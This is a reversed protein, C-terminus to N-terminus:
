EDPSRDKGNQSTDEGMAARMAAIIKSTVRHERLEREKAPSLDFDVSSQEIRRIITGETFGAEVLDIISSNTLSPAKELKPAAEGESKPRLIRVTASGVTQGENEIAGRGGRSKSRAKSGGSSGFIETEASSKPVTAGPSNGRGFFQDDELDTESESIDSQAAIMAVIIKESVKNRKLEILRDASLNFNSPRSRILAIITNESFGAKVLKIISANTLSEGDKRDQAHVIASFLLAALGAVILARCDFYRM